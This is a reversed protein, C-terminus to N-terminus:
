SILNKSIRVLKKAVVEKVQPDRQTLSREKSQLLEFVQRSKPREKLLTIVEKMFVAQEEESVLGGTIPPWGYALAEIVREELVGLVSSDPEGAGNM